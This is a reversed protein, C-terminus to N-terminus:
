RAVIARLFDLIATLEDERYSGIVSSHKWGSGQAFEAKGPSVTRLVPPPITLDFFIVSRNGKSVVLAPMTEHGFSVTSVEPTAMARLAQVDTPVSAIPTAVSIGIGNLEHCTSCRGFGRQSDSFLGRGRAAEPSLAPSASQTPAPGGPPVPEPHAIGNLSAVYAVVATLDQPSLIKEFAAMATGPVGRSVTDRIFAQDFERAALRPAGGATGRAGHCYGTACSRNFVQEGHKLFDQTDQSWAPGPCGLTFVFLLLFPRSM